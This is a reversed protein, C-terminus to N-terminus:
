ARPGRPLVAPADPLPAPSGLALWIAITLLCLTLVTAVTIWYAYWVLTLGFAIQEDLWATAATALDVIAAPGDVLLRRPTM